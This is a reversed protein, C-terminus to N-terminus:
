RVRRRVLKGRQMRERLFDFLALELPRDTTLRRYGIGLRRCASAVNANHAELRQVYGKRATVPDIFLERGTEVDRFMVAKEFALTLEAPDLVHFLVVEHGCAALATLDKELTGVPGLLDSILVLLSRKKVTRVIRHLPATLDTANGAAPQELRIMLHRLHGPRHRAPLFDRIREDFTLLGVADGQLSLFYALTAALTAAYQAKTYSLSGYSMSRSQDVMLHCRLNTEDEFKKIYYRDSRAYLKWDLYRPDDGPSYQRYETFEVSFGHYPSRHLGHWFGEVVVRARLELNKISMLTAPDILSRGEAPRSADITEAAARM